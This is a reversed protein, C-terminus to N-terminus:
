QVFIDLDEVLGEDEIQRSTGPAAVVAAVAVAVPPGVLLDQLVDAQLEQEQIPVPDGLVLYTHILNNNM